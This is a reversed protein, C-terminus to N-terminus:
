HKLSFPLHKLPSIEQLLQFYLVRAAIVGCLSAALREAAKGGGKRASFRAPAKERGPRLPLRRGCQIKNLEGFLRLALQLNNRAM